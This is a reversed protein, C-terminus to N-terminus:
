PKRVEKTRQEAKERAMDTTERRGERYWYEGRLAEGGPLSDVCSAFARLVQAAHRDLAARFASPEVIGGLGTALSFAMSELDARGDCGCRIGGEHRPPDPEVPIQNRCGDPFDACPQPTTASQETM